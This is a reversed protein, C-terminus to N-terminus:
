QGSNRQAKIVQMTAILDDLNKLCSGGPVFGRQLPHLPMHSEIEDRLAIHLLHEWLKTVANLMAIIRIQGVPPYATDDKSLFMTRATKMYLPLQTEGNLWREYYGRLKERIDPRQRLVAKLQRDALGDTGVAKGSALRKIADLMDEDELQIRAGSLPWWPLARPRDTRWYLKKTYSALTLPRNEDEQRFEHAITATNGARISSKIAQFFVKPLSCRIQEVVERVQPLEAADKHFLLTRTAAALKRVLPNTLMAEPASFPIHEEALAIEEKTPPAPTKRESSPPVAIRELGEREESLVHQALNLARNVKHAKSQREHRGPRTQCILKAVEMFPREPWRPDAMVAAYVETTASSTLHTKAVIKRHDGVSAVHFVGHLLSHDSWREQDAKELESSATNSLCYDITTRVVTGNVTAKRTYWNAGAPASPSTCALNCASAFKAAALEQRNLDGALVVAIGPHLEKVSSVM